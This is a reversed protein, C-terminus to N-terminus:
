TLSLLLERVAQERKRETFLDEDMLKEVSAKHSFGSPTAVLQVFDREDHTDPFLLAISESREARRKLNGEIWCSGWLRM